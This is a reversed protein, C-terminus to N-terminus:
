GGGVFRVVEVVDGDSLSISSFEGTSLILGNHEVAVREDGLHLTELLARVTLPHHVEREKGNLTIRLEFPEKGLHFNVDFRENGRCSKHNAFHLGVM